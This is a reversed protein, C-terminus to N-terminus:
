FVTYSVGFCKSVQEVCVIHPGVSENIEILEHHVRPQVTMDLVYYRSSTAYCLARGDFRMQIVNASTAIKEIVELQLGEDTLVGKYIHIQKKNTALAFLILRSSEFKKNISLLEVNGPGIEVLPTLSSRVIHILAKNRVALLLDERLV